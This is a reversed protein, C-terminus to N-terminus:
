PCLGPAATQVARSYGSPGAQVHILSVFLCFNRRLIPNKINTSSVEVSPPALHRYPSLSRSISAQGTQLTLDSNFGSPLSQLTGTCFAHVGYAVINWNHEYVLCHHLTFGPLEGFLVSSARQNTALEFPGARVGATLLCVTRHRGTGELALGLPLGSTSIPTTVSGTSSGNKFTM